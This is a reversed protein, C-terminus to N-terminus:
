NNKNDSKYFLEIFNTIKNYFWEIIGLSLTNLVNFVNSLDFGLYKFLYYIFAIKFPIWLFKFLNKIFRTM